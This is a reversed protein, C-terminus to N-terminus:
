KALALQKEFLQAKIVILAAELQPDIGNAIIKDPTPTDDDIKEGAQHLVDAVQRYEIMDAVQQNTIKVELDPNIGWTKAAPKRHIISGAPLMYYQTTLKLRAQRRSLDFLDQVSGKGFSRSGVIHARHYDQLAGSVIESASASGQNILVVVPFNDYTKHPRARHERTRQGDPGVTSVIPGQSVFRDTIEIASSLLGGPNFRLDLILGNLGGNAKMATVASDLDDATQPIFQSMRVYGIRSKEDIVFDWEGSKSLEWGRISEIKISARKIAKKLLDAEGKREVGLVVETNEPGTITRVAKDLTWSSTDQDDVEAIVDGARIGAKFAPTGPLPSVVVLRGDRMSIQIGVGYFKGHVNRNFQAMERPWIVGSFEDLTSMAGDAMEFVMVQTPLDLTEWNAAFVQDIVRDADRARFINRKELSRKLALLSNRFRTRKNEDTINKFEATKALTPTDAVTILADIAGNLLPVYGPRDIHRIAAAGMADVFMRREVGDLLTKWTEIETKPRNKKEIGKRKNREDILRDLEDPAYLRVLRLHREAKRVPKRYSAKDNFLLNLTRYLNLAEIWDQDKEAKTAKAVTKDVLEVVDPSKLLADPDSALTHAEVASIVAEELKGAEVKEKMEKLAKEYAARRKADDRNFHERQLQLASILSQARPNDKAEDSKKLTTLLEEFQGKRALDSVKALDAATAEMTLSFIALAALTLAIQYLRM